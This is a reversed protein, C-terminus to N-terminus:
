KLVLAFKDVNISTGKNNGFEDFKDRTEYTVVFELYNGKRFTIELQSNLFPTNSDTIDFIKMPEKLDSGKYLIIQGNKNDSKPATMLYYTQNNWKFVTFGQAFNTQHNRTSKLETFPSDKANEANNITYYYEQSEDVDSATTAVDVKPIGSGRSKNQYLYGDSSEVITSFSTNTTKTDEPNKILRQWTNGDDDSYIWIAENSRHVDKPNGSPKLRWLYVPFILRGNYSSDFQNKLEIGNAGGPYILGYDNQNTFDYLNLQSSLDKLNSWTKGNDFSELSYLQTSQDFAYYKSPRTITQNGVKAQGFDERAQPIDYISGSLYSDLNASDEFSYFETIGPFDQQLQETAARDRQAFDLMKPATDSDVLSSFDYVNGTITRTIPNYNNDIFLNLDELKTGEDIKLKFEDSGSDVPVYEYSDDKVWNYATNDIIKYVKWWNTQGNFVVPKAVYKEANSTDAKSYYDSWDSFKNFIYFRRWNLGENVFQSHKHLFVANNFDPQSIQFIYILKNNSLDKTEKAENQDDTENLPRQIEIFSGRNAIGFNTNGGGVQVITEPSVTEWTKGDDKSRMLVTKTKNILGRSIQARQGSTLAQADATLILSGDSLKKVVGREFSNAGFNRAVLPTSSSLKKINFFKNGEINKFLEEKIKAKEKLSDSLVSPTLSSDQNSSTTGSTAGTGSTTGETGSTTGSGSNGGGTGPNSEAGSGSGAGNDPSNTMGGQNASDGRQSLVPSHGCSMLVILPTFALGFIALYKKSKTM